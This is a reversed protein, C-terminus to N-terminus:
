QVQYRSTESEFQEALRALERAFAESREVISRVRGVSEALHHIQLGTSEVAGEMQRVQASMETCQQSLEGTSASYGDAIGAMQDMAQAAKRGPDQEGGKRMAAVKRAAQGTMAGIAQLAEMTRESQLLGARSHTVSQDALSVVRGAAARIRATLDGVQDASRAATGALKRVEEAVVAFGRGHEGARAAEISANLSLLNTQESVQRITGLAEGVETVLQYLSQMESATQEATRVLEHMQELSQRVSSEGEGAIGAARTASEVAELTQGTAEEISAALQSAVGTLQAAESRAGGALREARESVRGISQLLSRSGAAHAGFARTVEEAAQRADAEIRNAEAVIAQLSSHASRVHGVAGGVSLIFRVLQRRMEEVAATLKALQDNGSATLPARLDGSGISEVAQTLRTLPVILARLVLWRSILSIAVGAMLCSLAFLPLMGPKFQVFLSAWPPFVAGVLLGFGIMLLSLRKM